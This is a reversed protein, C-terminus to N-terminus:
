CPAIFDKLTRRTFVRRSGVVGIQKQPATASGDPSAGLSVKGQAVLELFRIADKYRVRAAETETAQAGLLRYRAIDVCYTVLIPYGTKLPLPYREALYVNIEATAAELASELVAPDATGTADRDALALVEREGLQRAMDDPTAYAAM